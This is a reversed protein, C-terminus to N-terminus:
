IQGTYKECIVEPADEEDLDVSNHAPAGISYILEQTETQGLSLIGERRLGQTCGAQRLALCRSVLGLRHCSSEM